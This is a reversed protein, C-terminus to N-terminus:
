TAGRWGPTPEHRVPGTHAAVGHRDIRDADQGETEGGQEGSGGRTAGESPEASPSPHPSTSARDDTRDCASGFLTLLAILVVATRRFLRM